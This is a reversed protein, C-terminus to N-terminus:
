KRIYQDNTEYILGLGNYNAYFPLFWFLCNEGFVTKFNRYYGLDYINISKTSPFREQDSQEIITQGNFVLKWNASLLWMLFCMLGFNAIYVFVYFSYLLFNTKDFIVSNVIVEWYSIFIFFTGITGHLHVLCFYKYNRFGICNALWPCHHDMKLVCKGCQRCHHSREFKWRLCSNCLNARSIDINKFHEFIFDLNTPDHPIEEEDHQEEELLPRADYKKKYVPKQPIFKTPEKTKKNIPILATYSNREDNLYQQLTNQKDDIYDILKQNCNSFEYFTLPGNNITKGFSKLFEKKKESKKDVATNEGDLAVELLQEKQEKQKKQPKKMKFKYRVPSNKSIINIELQTPDPFYGPDIFITRIMSLILLLISTGTIASLVIGKIKGNGRTSTNIFPFSIDSFKDSTLLVYLYSYFYTLSIMIILSFLIIVPLYILFYPVIKSKKKISKANVKPQPTIPVDIM